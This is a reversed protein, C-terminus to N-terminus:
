KCPIIKGHSKKAHKIANFLATHGETHEPYAALFASENAQYQYLFELAIMTCQHYKSSFIARNKERLWEALWDGLAVHLGCGPDAETWHQVIYKWSDKKPAYSGDTCWVLLNPIDLGKEPLPHSGINTTSTSNVTPNITHTPASVM